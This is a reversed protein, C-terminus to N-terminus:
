KVVVFKVMESTGDLQVYYFGDAFNSLDVQQNFITAILAGTQNYIYAETFEAEINLVDSAPNPYINFAQKPLEATGTPSTLIDIYNINFNGTEVTMRMMHTGQELYLATPYSVNQYDTWDGTIITSMTPMWEEGNISLSVAGIAGSEQAVNFDVTYFGSVAVDVTFELWEGTVTYGVGYEGTSGIEEIDVESNPRYPNASPLPDWTNNIEFHTVGIAGEDYNEVEVRGPLAIATGGFPTHGVFLDNVVVGFVEDVKLGGEDEASITINTNGSFNAPASITLINNNLVASVGSFGSVSYILNQDSTELDEFVNNLDITFADFGVLLNYNSVANDVFPPQNPLTGSKYLELDGEHPYVNVYVNGNRMEYDSPSLDVGNQKVAWLGLLGDMDIVVTVKEKILSSNMYDSVNVNIQPNINNWTVFVKEASSNYIVNPSFKLKQMQYTMVESVTGVWLEGSAVKSAVYNIHQRYAEVQVSGWGFSGVNHLERNAWMNNNIANDVENNLEALQGAQNKQRDVDDFVQVGTRFFGDNDPYFSAVDSNEYGEVHFGQDPGYPSSWGTRSGMYDLEKLRDNAANTFNDYPFIYYRPAFGTGNTISTHATNLERFFDASNPQEGWSIGVSADCPDWGRFVACQHTHSHSIIEHGHQAMMVNKAYGYPTSYGGVSRFAECESAIAGFTFKVGRNYTITDAYQWIGDVVAAGYDDHIITYAGQADNKWDAIYGSPNQAISTLSTLTTIAFFAKQCLKPLLLKRM